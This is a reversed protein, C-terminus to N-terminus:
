YENLDPALPNQMAAGANSWIANTTTYGPYGYPLISDAVTDPTFVLSCSGSQTYGYDGGPPNEMYIPVTITKLGGTPPDFKNYAMVQVSATGASQPNTFASPSSSFETVDDGFFFGAPGPGIPGSLPDRAALTIGANIFVYADFTTGAAVIAITASFTAGGDYYKGRGDPYAPEDEEEYTQEYADCPGGPTGYGTSGWSDTGSMGSSFSDFGDWDPGYNEPYPFLVSDIPTTEDPDPKNVAFLRENFATGEPDIWLDPYATFPDNITQVYHYVFNKFGTYTVAFTRTPIIIGDPSCGPEDFAAISASKTFSANGTCIWRKVRLHIAAIADLSRKSDTNGLIDPLRLNYTGEAPPDDRYVVYPYGPVSGVRAM